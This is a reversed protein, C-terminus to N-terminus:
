TDPPAPHHTHQATSHQPVTILRYMVAHCPCYPVLLVPLPETTTPSTNGQDTGRARVTIQEPDM